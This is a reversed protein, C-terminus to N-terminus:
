YVYMKLVGEGYFPNLSVTAAKQFPFWHVTVQSGEQGMHSIHNLIPYVLCIQQSTVSFLDLLEYSSFLSILLLNPLYSTVERPSVESWSTSYHVNINCTGPLIDSMVDKGFSVWEVKSSWAGEHRHRWHGTDMNILGRGRGGSIKGAMLNEDWIVSM